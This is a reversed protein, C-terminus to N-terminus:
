MTQVFEYVYNLNVITSQCVDPHFFNELSSVLFHLYIGLSKIIKALKDEM